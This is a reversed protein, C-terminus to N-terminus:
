LGELDEDLRSEFMEGLASLSKLDTPEDPLLPLEIVPHSGGVLDRLEAVAAHDRRGLWALLRHGESETSSEELLPHVRNIVIPGLNYGAETDLYHFYDMGGGICYFSYDFGHLHPAFKAEYGLHWKGTIATAYGAQKLLRVITPQAAPLGLDRQTALRIADDYRGVNGTGIACELGGVRHQYRGTMLATRTPSCEPANAYFDTFRVGRAALRDLVPTRIDPCGYSGLDGYGLDDALMFIVNPRDPGADIRAPPVVAMLAAAGLVVAQQGLVRPRSPTKM